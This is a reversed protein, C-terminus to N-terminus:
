VGNLAALYSVARGLGLVETESLNEQCTIGRVGEVAARFDSFTRLMLAERGLGIQPGDNLIGEVIGKPTHAVVRGALMDSLATKEVDSECGSEKRLLKANIGGSDRIQHSSGVVYEVDYM